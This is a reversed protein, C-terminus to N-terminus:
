RRLAERLLDLRTVPAVRDSGTIGAARLATWTAPCLEEVDEGSLPLGDRRRWGLRDMTHSAIDRRVDDDALASLCLLQLLGADHGAPDSEPDEAPLARMTRAAAPALDSERRLDLAQLLPVFEHAGAREILDVLDRRATGLTRAISESGTLDRNIAAIDVEASSRMVMGRSARRVSPADPGAPSIATGPGPEAEGADPGLADAGDITGSAAICLVDPTADDRLFAERVRLRHTWLGWHWTLVDGPEVLVEGILWDPPVEPAPDAGPAGLTFRSPPEDDPWGFMRRLAAGLRRVPLRDNIGFTRVVTEPEGLLTAGIVLTAPEQAVRVGPFAIVNDSDTPM